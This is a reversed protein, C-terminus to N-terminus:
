NALERSFVPMNRSWSTWALVERPFTQEPPCHAVSRVEVPEVPGVRLLGLAIATDKGLLSGANENEVVVFRAVTSLGTSDSSVRTDFTGKVPIPTPSGYPFVRLDTKLLSVDRFRHFAQSDLVNVSAGSDIIVSTYVGHIRVPVNRQSASNELVFLYEDEISHDPSDDETVM